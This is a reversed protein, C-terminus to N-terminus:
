GYRSVSIRKRFIDGLSERDPTEIEAPTKKKFLTTTNLRMGISLSIPTNEFSSKGLQSYLLTAFKDMVVLDHTPPNNNNIGRELQRKWLELHEQVANYILDLDSRKVIYVSFGKEVYEIIRVIPIYVTVFNNATEADVKPDGTIYRGYYKLHEPSTTALDPIRVKYLDEFLKVVTDRNDIM